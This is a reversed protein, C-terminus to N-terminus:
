ASTPYEGRLAALVLEKADPPFDGTLMWQLYDANTVVLDRLPRGKHQGFALAVEGDVWVLRGDHDVWDDGDRNLLRHLEDITTPLDSHHELQASLVAMAARVDEEASHAEPFDRGCYIRVAAALNRPHRNHFIAMADIVRRKRWQFDIRRTRMLEARLLPLDFHTIGFGALDCESLFADVGRAYQIFPPDSAVDADSIGHVATAEPPIPVGPNVRKRRFDERGDPHLKLIAIEVIRDREPSVGTSELDIFALFRELILAV